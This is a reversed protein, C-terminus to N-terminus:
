RGVVTEVSKDRVTYSVNKILTSFSDVNQDICAPNTIELLQQPIYDPCNCAISAFAKAMADPTFVLDYRLKYFKFVLDAVLKCDLIYSDNIKCILTEVAMACKDSYHAYISTVPSTPLQLSVSIARAISLAIIKNKQDVPINSSGYETYTRIHNAIDIARVDEGTAPSDVLSVANSM